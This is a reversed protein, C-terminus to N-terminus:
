TKTTESRTKGDKWHQCGFGQRRNNQNTELSEVDRWDPEDGNRSRIQKKLAELGNGWSGKVISRPEGVTNVLIYAHLAENDAAEKSHASSVAAADTAYDRRREAWKLATAIGAQRTGLVARIDDIWNHCGTGGFKEIRVEEGTLFKEQQQSALWPQPDGGM